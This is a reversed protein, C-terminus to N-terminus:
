LEFLAIGYFAYDPPTSNWRNYSHSEDSIFHLIYKGASLRITSNVLRNKIAGGAHVTKDISMKWLTDGTAVNEIWGYDYMDQGFGEGIAFLLIDTEKTISFNRSEAAFDTVKNIESILNQQNIKGPLPHTFLTNYVNYAKASHETDGVTTYALAFAFLELITLDKYKNYKGNQIISKTDELSLNLDIDPLSDNLLFSRAFEIAFPSHFVNGDPGGLGFPRSLLNTNALIIFNYGKDPMMMILSSNTNWFGYHWIIKEGKYNQIFWGYGYPLTDGATSITPSFVKKWTEPKLFKNKSINISFLAMDNASSMLGASAGFYEEMDGEIVNYLSDMVYPTACHSIFITSDLGTYSFALSDKINPVTSSLMSPQTIRRVLLESFSSGSGQSIVDDLYGYLFGSYQYYSGPDGQATHTLLHRVLIEDETALQMGFDRARKLNIGYNSIPDDLSVKGQEVLQMLIISAFPKTLSALHYVTNETAPIKKEIDAYGFGKAWIIKGDKVISASFGPMKLRIRWEEIRNEFSKLNNQQNKECGFYLILISFIFISLTKM